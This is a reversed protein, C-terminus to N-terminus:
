GRPMTRPLLFVSFPQGASLYYGDHSGKNASSNLDDQSEIREALRRIM